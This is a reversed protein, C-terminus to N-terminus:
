NRLSETVLMIGKLMVLSAFACLTKPIHATEGGVMSGLASVWGDAM